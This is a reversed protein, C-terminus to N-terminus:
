DFKQLWHMPLGFSLAIAVIGGFFVWGQAGDVEPALGMLFMGGLFLVFSVILAVVNM